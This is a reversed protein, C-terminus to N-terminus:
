LGIPSSAGWRHKLPIERGQLFPVTEGGLVLTNQELDVTAKLKRLIDLGFTLDIGREIVIFNAEAHRSGVALPVRGLRGVVTWQKKARDPVSVTGNTETDILRKLGCTTATEESMVSFINGTDVVAKVEHDNCKCKIFLLTNDGGLRSPCDNNDYDSCSHHRRGTRPRSAPVTLADTGTADQSMSRNRQGPQSAGSDSRKFTEKLAKQQVIAAPQTEKSVTGMKKLDDIPLLDSSDRHVFGAHHGLRKQQRKLAAERIDDRDYKYSM